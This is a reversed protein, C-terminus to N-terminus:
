ITIKQQKRNNEVIKLHDLYRNNKGKGIYFPKYEFKLNEYVYDWHFRPYLYVYVYFIDDM